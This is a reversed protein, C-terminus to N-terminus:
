KLNAKVEQTGKPYIMIFGPISVLTAGEQHGKVALGQSKNSSFALARSVKQGILLLKQMIKSLIAGWM